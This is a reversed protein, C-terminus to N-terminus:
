AKPRRRKTPDETPGSQLPPPAARVQENAYETVKRAIERQYAEDIGPGFKIRLSGPRRITRFAVRQSGPIRFTQEAPPSSAATPKSDAARLLAACVADPSLTSKEPAALREAISEMDSRHQKLVRVLDQIWNLRIVRPDRFAKVVFDPLEAVQIYKTVSPETLQRAKALATQSEYVGEKLCALFECGREYASLSKRMENERDMQEVLERDTMSKVRIKIKFGGEIESNLVAAAAHRRHGFGIEFREPHDAGAPTPRVLIEQDQGDQRMSEVLLVFDPDTKQLSLVLRNAFRSHGVESPSVELIVGGQQREAELTQIQSKLHENENALGGALREGVRAVHTVPERSIPAVDPEAATAGALVANNIASRRTM